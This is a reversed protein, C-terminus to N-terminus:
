RVPIPPAAFRVLTPNWGPGFALDRGPGNGPEIQDIPIDAQGM